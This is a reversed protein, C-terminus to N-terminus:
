CLRTSILNGKKKRMSLWRPLATCLMAIHSCLIIPPFFLCVSIANPSTQSTKGSPQWYSLVIWWQHVVSNVMSQPPLFFFLVEFVSPIFVGVLDDENTLSGCVFGMARFCLCSNCLFSAINNWSFCFTGSRVSRVTSSVNSAASGFSNTFAHDHTGYLLSVWCFGILIWPPEPSSLMMLHNNSDFQLPLLEITQRWFSLRVSVCPPESLSLSLSPFTESSPVRRCFWAQLSFARQSIHKFFVRFVPSGFTNLATSLPWLYQRRFADCVNWRCDDSNNCDRAGPVSELAIVFGIRSWGCTRSGLRSELYLGPFKPHGLFSSFLVTALVFTLSDSSLTPSVVNPCVSFTGMLRWKGLSPNASDGEVSCQKSSMWYHTTIHLCHLTSLVLLDQTLSNLHERRTPKRRLNRRGGVGFGHFEAPKFGEWYSRLLDNTPWMVNIQRHYFQSSNAWFLMETVYGDVECLFM